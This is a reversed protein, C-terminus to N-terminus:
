VINHFYVASEALVTDLSAQKCLSKTGLKLYNQKSKLHEAKPKAQILDEGLVTTAWCCIFGGLCRPLCGPSNEKQCLSSFAVNKQFRSLMGTKHSFERLFYSSHFVPWKWIDQSSEIFIRPLVIQAPAYAFCFILFLHGKYPLLLIIYWLYRTDEGAWRLVKLSRDPMAKLLLLFPSRPRSTNCVTVPRLHPASLGYACEGALRAALKLGPSQGQKYIVALCM